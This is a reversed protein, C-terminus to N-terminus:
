IQQNKLKNTFQKRITIKMYMYIKKFAIKLKRPLTLFSDFNQIYIYIYLSRDDTQMNQQYIRLTNFSEYLINQKVSLVTQM